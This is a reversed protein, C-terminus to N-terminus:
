KFSEVKARMKMRRVTGRAEKLREGCTNDLKIYKYKNFAVNVVSLRM